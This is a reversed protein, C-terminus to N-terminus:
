EQSHIGTQRRKNRVAQEDTSVCGKGSAHMYIDAKKGAARGAKRAALNSSDSGRYGQQCSQKRKQKQLGRQRATM